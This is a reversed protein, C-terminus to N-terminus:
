GPPWTLKRGGLIHFHLHDVSQGANRGTNTVIRYGEADLGLDTALEAAFRLLDGLLQGGETGKADRVAPVHGTPIVLVHVPAKPDIDRFALADESRKIVKAPVEGTVIKCFLCDAM